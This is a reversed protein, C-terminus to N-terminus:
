VGSSMAANWFPEPGPAPGRGGRGLASAIIAFRAGVIASARAANASFSILRRYNSITFTQGTAEPTMDQGLNGNTGGGELTLSKIALLRDRGGLAAAADDIVQQEPPASQCGALIGLALVAWAQTRIM